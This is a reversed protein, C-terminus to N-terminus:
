KLMKAISVVWHVLLFSFLAVAMMALCCLSKGFISHRGLLGSSMEQVVSAASAKM